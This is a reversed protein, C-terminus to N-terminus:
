PAGDLPARASAPAVSGITEVVIEPEGYSSDGLGESRLAIGLGGRVARRVADHVQQDGVDRHVPLRLTVLRITTTM